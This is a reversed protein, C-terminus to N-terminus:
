EVTHSKSFAIDIAVTGCDVTFTVLKTLFDGFDGFRVCHIQPRFVASSSASFEAGRSHSKGERIGVNEM